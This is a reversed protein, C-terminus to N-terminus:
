YAEGISFYIAEDHKGWGYDIRANIRYADIMRYRVGLGAAPLAEDMSYNSWDDGVFGVGAFGALGWKGYVNWRYETELTLLQDGRYRGNSYGRLNQNGSMIAQGSFPVDGFAADTLIRGALVRTSDGLTKYGTVTLNLKNFNRASGLAEDYVDYRVAVNTGEHPDMMHDRLDWNGTLGIAQYSEEPFETIDPEVSVLASWSILELGAYIHPAVRREGKAFAFNTVTTYDLFVDPLGPGASGPNFQYKLSGTGFAATARWIDHKFHFKQFMMGVWTNNETYMGIVGTSSPPLEDDTRDMKYYTMGVIGLGFGMVDSYSPVPIAAFKLNREDDDLAYTGAGGGAGGSGMQANAPHPLIAVLSFTCILLALLTRHNHNM